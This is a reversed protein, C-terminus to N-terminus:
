GPAEPRDAGPVTSPDLDPLELEITFRGGEVRARLHGGLEEVLRQCLSLGLGAHEGVAARAPDARWFADFAREATEPTAARAANSGARWRRLTEEIASDADAHCVANEM